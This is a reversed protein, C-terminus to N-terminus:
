RLNVPGLPLPAPLLPQTAVPAEVPGAPSAEPLARPTAVPLPAPEDQYCDVAGLTAMCRVPPVAPANPMASADANPPPAGSKLVGKQLARVQDSVVGEQPWLEDQRPMGCGALLLALVLLAMAGSQRRGRGCQRPAEELGGVFTANDYPADLHHPEKM